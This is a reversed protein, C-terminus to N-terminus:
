SSLTGWGPEICVPVFFSYATPYTHFSVLYDAVLQETKTVSAGKGKRAMWVPSNELYPSFVKGMGWPM